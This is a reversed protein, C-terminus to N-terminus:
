IWWKKRVKQTSKRRPLWQRFQAELFGGDTGCSAEVAQRWPQLALKTCATRIKGNGIREGPREFTPQASGTGTSGWRKCFTLPLRNQGLTAKPTVIPANTREANAVSSYCERVQCFNGGLFSYHCWYPQGCPVITEPSPTNSRHESHQIFSRRWHFTVGQGRAASSCRRISYANEEIFTQSPFM